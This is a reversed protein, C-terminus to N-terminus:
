ALFRNHWSDKAPVEWNELYDAKTIVLNNFVVTNKSVSRVKAMKKFDALPKYAIYQGNYYTVNMKDLLDLGYEKELSQIFYVSSDISCGSASANEQNLGIVIFRNYRIEFAAELDSGHATWQQLFVETKAEIESVEDDSLKRNSQYIWIKSEDPLNKFDTTM